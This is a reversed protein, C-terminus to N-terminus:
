RDYYGSHLYLAPIEEDHYMSINRQDDDLALVPEFGAYRLEEVALRKMDQPPGHDRRGRM